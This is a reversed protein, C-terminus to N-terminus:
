GKSFEKRAEGVQSIAALHKDRFGELTPHWVTQLFGKLHKPDIKKALYEVMNKFNKPSSWNSGAPIQDYGKEELDLYAKVYNIDENFPEGYYWNAQLVSHPMKEFFEDHHRWVHDSWMWARSKNKEVEGVFFLLDKWWLGHQRIVCYEYSEQHEQTEEDMGIHFFRPHDFLDCAEGILDACVKYYPETSVRRSYDGLWIDHGTSFNLKPIPEIGLKRMQGLKEKLHERSWSGKVALEPHTQYQVGEGLDIVALNIGAEQMVPMLDDWLKEDCRLYPRAPWNELKIKPNDWDGWMNYGLHILYGWIMKDNTEAVAKEEAQTQTSAGLIGLGALGAAAAKIVERRTAM